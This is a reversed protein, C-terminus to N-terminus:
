SLSHQNILVNKTSEMVFLSQYNMLDQQQTAITDKSDFILEERMGPGESGMGIDLGAWDSASTPTTLKIFLFFQNPYISL